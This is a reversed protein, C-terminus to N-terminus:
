STQCFRWDLAVAVSAGGDGHLTVRPEHEHFDIQAVGGFDPPVAAAFQVHRLTTPADASFRRTTAIGERAPLESARSAGLGDCFHSCVDEVGIRRTHRGRWPAGDRGGDSMWLLTSPFDAADRLSVWVFGTSYTLATWSPGSSAAASLMVIDEHGPRAPYRLLSTTGGRALPVADLSAFRAGRALANRETGDGRPYTYVGAFRLPSTRLEAQVGEPIHLIPHHGYNFDGSVGSIRHEQYLAAHGPRLLLRKELRGGALPGSFSFDLALHLSGPSTDILRWPQNAPEGHIHPHGAAADAGFPFCFFDGRLVQLIPPAAPEDAPQWPALSYPSFVDSPFRFEVPAVHGGRATVRLSVCDNALPWSPEGHHLTPHPSPPM